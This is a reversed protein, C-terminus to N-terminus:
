AGEAEGPINRLRSSFDPLAAPLRACRECERACWKNMADGRMPRLAPKAHGGEYTGPDIPAIGLEGDALFAFDDDVDSLQVSPRTNVGWAKDCNADCALTVPKGFMVVAKQIM